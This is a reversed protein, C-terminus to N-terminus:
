KNHRTIIESKKKKRIFNAYVIREQRIQRCCNFDQNLPATNEKRLVSTFKLQSKIVRM